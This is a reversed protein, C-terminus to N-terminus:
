IWLRLSQNSGMRFFSPSAPDDDDYDYDEDSKAAFRNNARRHRTNNTGALFCHQHRFKTQITRVKFLDLTALLKVRKESKFYSLSEGDTEFYRRQWKGNRGYKHLYGYILPRVQGKYLDDDEEQIDGEIWSVADAADDAAPDIPGSLRKQM